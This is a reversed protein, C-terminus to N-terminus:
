DWGTYKKIESMATKRKLLKIQTMKIDYKYKNIPDIIGRQEINKFMHFVTIFNYIIKDVFGIMNTVVPGTQM